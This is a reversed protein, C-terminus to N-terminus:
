GDDGTEPTYLEVTQRLNVGLSDNFGLLVQNLEGSGGLFDGTGGTVARAVPEGIDVIEYGESIINAFGSAKTPTWGPEDYLALTQTTIVIPGTTTAIGEGVFAGRCTWEGLVADPDAPSGDPRTGPSGDLHGAPYIYGQTVFSNGYAPMGDEFVHTSDFAFRSMDESIDFELIQVTPGHMAADDASGPGDVDCGVAPVLLAAFLSLTRLSPSRLNHM